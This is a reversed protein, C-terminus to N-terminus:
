KLNISLIETQEPYLFLRGEYILLFSLENNFLDEACEKDKALSVIRHGYHYSDIYLKM